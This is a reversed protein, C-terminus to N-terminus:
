LGHVKPCHLGLYVTAGVCMGALEVCVHAQHEAVRVLVVRWAAVDIVHCAREQYPGVVCRWM